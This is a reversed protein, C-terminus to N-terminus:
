EIRRGNVLPTALLARSGAPCVTQPPMKKTVEKNGIHNYTLPTLV